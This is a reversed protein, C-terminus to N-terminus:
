LFTVDGFLLDYPLITYSRRGHPREAAEEMATKAGAAFHGGVCERIEEILTDADSADETWPCAILDLDTAMSGHVALAYGHKRAVEILTPV